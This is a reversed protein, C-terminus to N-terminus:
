PNMPKSKYNGLQLDTGRHKDCDKLGFIDPTTIM